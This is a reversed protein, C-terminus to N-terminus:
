QHHSQHEDPEPTQVPVRDPAFLVNGSAGTVLVAGGLLSVHHLLHPLLGM